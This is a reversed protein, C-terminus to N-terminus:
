SATATATEDILAVLSDTNFSGNPRLLQTVPVLAGLRSALLFHNQELGTNPIGRFLYTHKKLVRFKDVGHIAKVEPVTRNHTGLVFLHDVVAKEPHFGAVPLYYKKLEGRVAHLGKASIGLHRLSDDWIKISPFAPCVAPQDSFDIVSIDDAVLLGGAKVLTAALTSKGAGSLGAFVLCRGNYVVTSAHLPLMRRQHLLAGFSTGTIFASVEHPSADGLLQVVVENGNRVHYRAVHAVNLLFESDTSQFLVGKNIAGPLTDPVEGTHICVDAIGPEAPEFGTVALQSSVTLGFARYAFPYSASM